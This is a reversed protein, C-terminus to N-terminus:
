LIWPIYLTNCMFLATATEKPLSDLYSPQEKKKTYIVLTQNVFVESSLVRSVPRLFFM